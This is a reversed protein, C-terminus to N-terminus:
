ANDCGSDLFWLAGTLWALAEFGAGADDFAACVTFFLSVTTASLSIHSHVPFDDRHKGCNDDASENGRRTV